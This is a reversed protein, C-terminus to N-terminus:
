LRDCAEPFKWTMRMQDNRLVPPLLDGLKREGPRLLLYFNTKPRGRLIGIRVSHLVLNRAAVAAAEQLRKRADHDDRAARRGSRMASRTSADTLTRDDARVIVPELVTAGTAKDLSLVFRQEGQRSAYSHRLKSQWEQQSIVRM